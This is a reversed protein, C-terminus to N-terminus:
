RVSEGGTDATRDHADRQHRPLRARFVTRGAGSEAAVAM